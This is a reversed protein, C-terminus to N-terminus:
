MGMAIILGHQYPGGRTSLFVSLKFMASVFLLLLLVIPYLLPIQVSFWIVLVVFVFFMKTYYECDRSIIFHFTTM